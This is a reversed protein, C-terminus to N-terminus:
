TRVARDVNFRHQPFFLRESSPRNEHRSDAILESETQLYGSDFIVLIDSAKGPTTRASPPKKLLVAAVVGGVLTCIAVVLLGTLIGEKEVPASLSARFSSKM